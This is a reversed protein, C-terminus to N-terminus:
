KARKLLGKRPNPSCKKREIVNKKPFWDFISRGEVKTEKIIKNENKQFYIIILKVFPMIPKEKMSGCM